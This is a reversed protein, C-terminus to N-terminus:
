SWNRGVRQLLSRRQGAAGRPQQPRQEPQLEPRRAAPALDRGRDRRVPQVALPRVREEARRRAIGADGVIEDRGSRAELRLDQEVGRV